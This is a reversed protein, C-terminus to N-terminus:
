SSAVLERWPRIREDLEAEAFLEPAAIAEAAQTALRSATIWHPDTLEYVFYCGSYFEGGADDDVERARTEVARYAAQMASMRRRHVVPVIDKAEPGPLRQAGPPLRRVGAPKVAAAGELMAVVARGHPGYMRWSPVEAVVTYADCVFWAPKGGRVVWRTNELGTVQWMSEGPGVMVVEPAAYFRLGEREMSPFIGVRGPYVRRPESRDTIRSGVAIPELPGLVSSIDPADVVGELLGPQDLGMIAYPTAAVRSSVFYNGAPDPLPPLSDRFPSWGM